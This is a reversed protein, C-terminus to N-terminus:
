CAPMTFKGDTVTVATGDAATVTVDGDTMYGEAPTATLTVTAGEAAEVKDASVTGNEVSEITISYKVAPLLTKKVSKGCFIKGNYDEPVKIFLVSTNFFANTPSTLEKTGWYEM